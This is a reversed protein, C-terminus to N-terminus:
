LNIIDPLDNPKKTIKSSKSKFNLDTINKYEIFENLIFQCAEEETYFIKAIIQEGKDGVHIIEWKDYNKYLIMGPNSIDGNLNYISEPINLEQLKEKLETIKM